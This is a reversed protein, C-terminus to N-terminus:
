GSDDTFWTPTGSDGKGNNNYNGDLVKPFNNPKVFWDFTIRWDTKKGTLFDSAKIKEIATLVSGIGFEKIRANLNKYRTSSASMKSIGAIGLPVLANWADVVKQMDESNGQRVTETPRIIDSDKSSSIIINNIVKKGEEITHMPRADTTCQDHMQQANTTADPSVDCQYFDWNVITITTGHTTADVTVMEDSELVKLFRSVTTRHWRWRSALESMSKYVTGHKFVLLKGGYLKKEDKWSALLLLDIWASRKDFPEDDTWLWNHKICRNLKIYDNM